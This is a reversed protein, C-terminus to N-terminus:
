RRERAALLATVGGLWFAAREADNMERLADVGGLAHVAREADDIDRIAGVCHADVCTTRYTYGYPRGCRDCIKHIVRMM